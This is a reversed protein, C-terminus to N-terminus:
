KDSKKAEKKESNASTLANQLEENQAKLVAIQVEKEALQNALQRIIGNADVSRGQENSM